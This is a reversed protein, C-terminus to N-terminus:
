KLIIKSFFIISLLLHHPEEIIVENWNYLCAMAVINPGISGTSEIDAAMHYAGRVPDHLDLKPNNEVIPKLVAAIKKFNPKEPGIFGEAEIKNLLDSQMPVFGGNESIYAYMYLFKEGKRTFVTESFRPMGELHNLLESEFKQWNIQTLLPTMVDKLEQNAKISALNAPSPILFPYIISIVFKQLGEDKYDEATLGLAFMLAITSAHVNGQRSRTKLYDFLDPNALHEKDINKIVDHWWATPENDLSVLPDPYFSGLKEFEAVIEDSAVSKEIPSFVSDFNMFFKDLAKHINENDFETQWNNLNEFFHNKVKDYKFGSVKFYKDIEAELSSQALCIPSIILYLVTIIKM